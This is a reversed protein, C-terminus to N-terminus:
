CSSKRHFRDSRNCPSEYDSLITATIPSLTLHPSKKETEKIGQPRQGLNNMTLKIFIILFVYLRM